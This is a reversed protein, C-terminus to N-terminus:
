LEAELFSLQLNGVSALVNGVRLILLSQLLQETRFGHDVLHLM